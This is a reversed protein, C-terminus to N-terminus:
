AVALLFSINRWWPLLKTMAKSIKSKKLEQKHELSLLYDETWDMFVNIKDSPNEWNLSRSTELLADFKKKLNEVSLKMCSHPIPFYVWQVQDNYIIEIRGIKKSSHVDCEKM